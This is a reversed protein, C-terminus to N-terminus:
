IHSVGSQELKKVSLLNRRLHPVYLVNEINCDINKNGVISIATINAVRMALLFNENKAVVIKITENLMILDSKENVMYDTCGSNVFFKLINIQGEKNENNAEGLFCVNRDDEFERTTDM